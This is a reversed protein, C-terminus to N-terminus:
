RPLKRDYFQENKPRRIPISLGGSSDLEDFLKERLERIKGFDVNERCPRMPRSKLFLEPWPM